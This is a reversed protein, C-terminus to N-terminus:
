MGRAKFSSAGVIASKEASNLLWANKYHLLSWGGNRIGEVDGGEWEARTETGLGGM